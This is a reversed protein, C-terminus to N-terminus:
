AASSVAEATAKSQQRAKAKLAQFYIAFPRYALHSWKGFPVELMLMPTLIVLHITYTYYTALPLDLYRFTHVLIGSITTLLLLIPFVWDSPHSFRHIQNEKKIRGWLIDAGGYLLAITAYYGLWRQPHYIPYINDTQFWPLFGVVLAFMLVYGSVLFWHNRWRAKRFFGRHEEDCKGFQKQTLFHYILQWAETLYVTLPVKVSSDKVVTLWYMRFINSLLFFSLFAALAWDGYHIYKVPAFANLAVHDTAMPGAFFVFMLLILLGVFVISGIEWAISTYFKRALGTWDYQATLWRRAAMMTEGPEAGKPCTASCDGCYYCLWPALESKMQERDGIQARRIVSRPFPYEDSALPCIATCNGCNFCKELGVAGYEKLEHLFTPDVRNM